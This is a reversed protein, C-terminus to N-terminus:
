LAQVVSKGTSSRVVVPNSNAQPQQQKHGNKSKKGVQEPFFNMANLLLEESSLNEKKAVQTDATDCGENEAQKLIKQFIPNPAPLASSSFQLSRKLRPRATDAKDEQQAAQQVDKEHLDMSPDGDELALLEHHGCSSSVVTEQSDMHEAPLNVRDLVIGLKIGDERGINRM